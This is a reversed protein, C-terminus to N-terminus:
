FYERISKSWLSTVMEGCQVIVKNKPVWIIEELEGHPTGNKAKAFCEYWRAARGCNIKGGGLYSGITIDIGTQEKVCIKLADDYSEGKVVNRAPIDWESPLDRRKGLLIDNGCSIIARVVHSTMSSKM